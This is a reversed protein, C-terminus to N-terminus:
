QNQMAMSAVQQQARNQRHKEVFATLAGPAAAGIGAGLIGAGTALGPHAAYFAPALKPGLKGALTAGALAGAMTGMGIGAGSLAASLPSGTYSHVPAVDVGAGLDEAVKCVFDAEDYLDEAFALKELADQYLEEAALKALQVEEYEDYFDDYSAEKNQYQNYAAVAAGVGAVGAAGAAYRGKNRVIHDRTAGYAPGVKGKVYNYGEGAKGKTYNYGDSIKGTTYDYGSRVKGKLKAYASPDGEAALKYLDAYEYLSMDSAEKNRNYAYAGAGLAALGAAGAGYRMKNRGLHGRTAEYGRGVADKAANYGRGIKDKAKQYMSAEEAAAAEEEAALKQLYAYDYLSMLNDEGFHAVKTADNNRKNILYGAGAAAASLGLGLKLKNIGRGAKPLPARMGNVTASQTQGYGRFAEMTANGSMRRAKEAAEAAQTYNAKAYDDMALGFVGEQGRHIRQQRAAAQTANYVKAQEALPSRAAARARSRDNAAEKLMEEYNQDFNYSAEKNTLAGYAAGLGGGLLSGGAAGALAHAPMVLARNGPMFASSALSLAGGIGAGIKAGTRAKAWTHNDPEADTGPGHMLRTLGYAGLAGVGAGYAGAARRYGPAGVGMLEHFEAPILHEMGKVTSMTGAAGLAGGIAGAAAARRNIDLQTLQEDSAIKGTNNHLAYGGLATLTRNYSDIDRDSAEKSKWEKYRDYGLAGLAAGGAVGAIGSLGIKKNHLGRKLDEKFVKLGYKVGPDHAYRVSKLRSNGLERSMRYPVDFADSYYKGAIGATAGAAGALAGAASGVGVGVHRGISSKSESDQDSAEKSTLAKYGGYGLAAGGALGALGKGITNKSKWFKSVAQRAGEHGKAEAQEIRDRLSLRPKGGDGDWKNRIYDSMAKARNKQLERVYVKDAQDDLLAGAVGAGSLGGVAASIAAGNRYARRSEENQEMGYGGIM